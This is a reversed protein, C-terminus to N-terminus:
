APWYLSAYAESAVPNPVDGPGIRHKAEGGMNNFYCEYGISEANATFFAFMQQIFLPNDGAGGGAGKSWVGWEPISMPKGKSQAYRLWARIGLPGGNRDTQDQAKIWAEHTPASPYRDYRDQGIYDVVDDGPYFLDIKKKSQGKKLSCWDIKAGPFTTKIIGVLRRFTAQYAEAWQEDVIGWPYSKASNWEWGPRFVYDDRDRQQRLYRVAREWHEDYSGQAADKWLAPEDRPVPGDKRPFMGFSVVIQEPRDLLAGLMTEPRGLQEIEDWTIFTSFTTLMDLPRGRWEAFEEPRWSAVGSRWPLGSRFGSSSQAALPMVGGSPAGAGNNAAPAETTCAPVTAIAAGAALERLLKRRTRTMNM